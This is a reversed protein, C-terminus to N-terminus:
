PTPPHTPTPEPRSALLGPCVAVPNLDDSRLGPSVVDFVAGGAVRVGDLAGHLRDETWSWVEDLNRTLSGLEGHWRGWLFAAEDLSEDVVDLFPELRSNSAM